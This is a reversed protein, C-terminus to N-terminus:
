DTSAGPYTMSSVSPSGSTVEVETFSKKKKGKGCVEIQWRGSALQKLFVDSLEYVRCSRLKTSGRKFQAVLWCSGTNLIHYTWYGTWFSGSPSEIATAGGLATMWKDLREKEERFSNGTAVAYRRGMVWLGGGYYVFLPVLAHAAVWGLVTHSRPHDKSVVDVIAFLFCFASLVFIKFRWDLWLIIATLFSAGAIVYVLATERSPAESYVALLLLFPTLVSLTIRARSITGNSAKARAVLDLREVRSLAM